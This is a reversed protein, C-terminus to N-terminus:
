KMPKATAKATAGFMVKPKPKAKPKSKVKPKPTSRTAGGRFFDNPLRWVDVTGEKDFLWTPTVRLKGELNSYLMLESGKMRAVGIHGYKGWAKSKAYHSHGKKYVIIDGPKIRSPNVLTGGANRIHPGASGAAGGWPAKGLKELIRNITGLCYHKRVDPKGYTGM